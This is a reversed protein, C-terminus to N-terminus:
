FRCRLLELRCGREAPQVSPTLWVVGGEGTGSLLRGFGRADHRKRTAWTTFALAGLGTSAPVAWVTSDDDLQLVLDLGFGFATGLVGGLNIWALRSEDLDTSMAAIGGALGGGASALLMTALTADDSVSRNAAAIRAGVLGFWSAWSASSLFLGAQGASIDAGRTLFATTVTGGVLGATGWLLVREADADAVGSWGLAQWMAFDGGNELARAQGRTLRAHRGYRYAAVASVPGAAMM